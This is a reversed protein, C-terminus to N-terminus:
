AARSESLVLEPVDLIEERARELRYSIEDWVNQVYDGEGWRQTPLWTSDEEIVTVEDWYARVIADPRLELGRVTM